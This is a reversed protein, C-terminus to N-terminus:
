RAATIVDDCSLSVQTHNHGFFVTVRILMTIDYTIDCSKFIWIVRNQKKFHSKSTTHKYYIDCRDVLTIQFLGKM